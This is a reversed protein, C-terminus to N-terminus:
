ILPNRIFIKIPSHYYITTPKKVNIFGLGPIVIDQESKIKIKKNLDLTKYIRKLPVNNSFYFIINNNKPCQLYIKEFIMFTQEEKVQYIAPNIPHKIILKELDDKELFHYINESEILGPTDVIIKGNIKIEIFDITTQPMISTTITPELDSYNYLLKNILSSKGANVYGVFYTKENLMSYLKDLNDNKDSSVVIINKFKGDKFYDILKQETIRIQDKKTIVLTVNQFQNFANFNEPINLIDVILFLNAEQDINKLVDIHNANQKFENYHKLRFCRECLKKKTEGGCGLCKTM